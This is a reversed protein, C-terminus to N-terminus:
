GLVKAQKQHVPFVQTQDTPRHVPHDLDKSSMFGLNAADHSFQDEPNGVLDSM